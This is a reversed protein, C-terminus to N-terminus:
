KEMWIKILVFLIFGWVIMGTLLFVIVIFETMEMGELNWPQRKEM